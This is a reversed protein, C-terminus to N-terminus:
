FLIYNVDWKQYMKLIYDVQYCRVYNFIHMIIYINLIKLLETWTNQMQMQFDAKDKKM